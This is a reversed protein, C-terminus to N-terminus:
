WYEVLNEKSFFYDEETSRIMADSRLSIMQWVDSGALIEYALRNQEFKEPERKRETRRM